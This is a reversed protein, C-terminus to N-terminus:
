NVLLFCDMLPLDYCWFPSDCVCAFWGLQNIPRQERGVIEIPGPLSTLVILIM